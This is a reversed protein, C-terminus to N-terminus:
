DYTARGPKKRDAAIHIEASSVGWLREWSGTGRSQLRRHNRNRGGLVGSQERENCPHPSRRSAATKYVEREQSEVGLAERNGM